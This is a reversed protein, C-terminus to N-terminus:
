EEVDSEGGRMESERTLHNRKLTGERGRCRAGARVIQSKKREGGGASGKEEEEEM